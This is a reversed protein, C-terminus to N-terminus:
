AMTYIKNVVKWGESTKLLALYDTFRYEPFVLEVRAVAADGHQDIGAVQSSAMPLKAGGERRQEIRTFWSASATSEVKGDSTAILKADGDFAKRLLDTDSGLFGDIYNQVTARIAPEETQSPHFEM